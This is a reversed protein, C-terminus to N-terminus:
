NQFATPTLYTSVSYLNQWGPIFSVTEGPTVFDMLSLQLANIQTRVYVSSKGVLICGVLESVNTLLSVYSSICLSLVYSATITVDHRGYIGVKSIFDTVNCSSMLHLSSVIKVGLEGM